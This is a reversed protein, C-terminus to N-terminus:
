AVVPRSSLGPYRETSSGARSRSSAADRRTLRGTDSRCCRPPAAHRRLAVHPPRLGPRVMPEFHALPKTPYDPDFSNQDWEDAFQEALDFWPEGVTSTALTPTWSRLPRLLAPGPLGSPRPDHPLHRRRRLASSRPRSAPTTPCRSPRASTTACRPWSWRTTPGPKRPGPPRRCATPSSTSPSATPSRARAVRAHRLVREAVRGQNEITEVM